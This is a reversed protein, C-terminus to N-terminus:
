LTKIFKAPVGMVLSNDPVDKTVVSGAGIIVYDGIKLNPLIISGAGIQTFNGVEVGGLLTVGPSIEVFDGIKCNHTIVANYYIMAYSGITVENSVVVGTLMTTGEGFIVNESGITAKRSILSYPEGGIKVFEKHLRHRLLPKGIGLLFLPDAKLHKKVDTFNTFIHRGYLKDSSLVNLNDFFYIAGDFDNDILAQYTEKAFGSAGIIIM